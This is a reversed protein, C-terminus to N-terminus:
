RSRASANRRMGSPSTINGRNGFNQMAMQKSTVKKEQIRPANEALEADTPNSAAPTVRKKALRAKARARAKAKTMHYRSREMQARLGPM